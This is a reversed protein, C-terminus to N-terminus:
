NVGSILTDPDVPNPNPSSDGSTSNVAPSCTMNQGTRGHPNEYEYNPSATGAMIEAGPMKTHDPNKVM